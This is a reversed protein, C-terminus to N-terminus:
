EEKYKKQLTLINRGEERVYIVENMWKIIMHIGLGGIKREDIGAQTDVRPHELPNFEKGGDEFQMYFFPSEAAIRVVAEGGSSDYAYKAINVFLEEAAIAIENAAKSPCEAEELAEELWELLRDLESIAAPLKLEKDFTVHM